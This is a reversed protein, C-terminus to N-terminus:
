LDLSFPCPAIIHSNQLTIICFCFVLTLLIWPLSAIAPSSFGGESTALLDKGALFIWDTPISVGFSDHRNSWTRGVNTWSNWTFEQYTDANIVMNRILILRLNFMVSDEVYTTAVNWLHCICLIKERLPARTMLIWARTMFWTAPLLLYILVNWENRGSFFCSRWREQGASRRCGRADWGMCIGVPHAHFAVTVRQM